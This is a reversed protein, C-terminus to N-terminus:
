RATHVAEWCGDGSHLQVKLQRGPARASSPISMNLGDAEVGIVAHGHRGTRLRVERVGPAPAGSRRYRFGRRLRRWDAGAPMVDEALLATGRADEAYVCLVYETDLTPDGFAMAPARGRSWTWALSEARQATGARLALTSRRQLEPTACGHAPAPACRPEVYQICEDSSGAASTPRCEGSDCVDGFTCPDGDNCTVGENSPDLCDVGLAVATVQYAGAGAVRDVSVNWAGAIPSSIICAGYQGIGDEQQCAIDAGPVDPQLALNFDADHVGNMTVRLEVTGAPVRFQHVARRQADGLEATTSFTETRTAGIPAFSGCPATDLDDGAVAAIWDRFAYLDTDFALDDTLCEGNHGGGTTGALMVGAPTEVFLPGGSDGNCTNSNTGASGLPARFYWWLRGAGDGPAATLTVHGSRKLGYDEAQGGSRGFGVITAPTGEGPTGATNIESPAIASVPEALRVIALDAQHFQIATHVTISTV